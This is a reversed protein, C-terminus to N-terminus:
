QRLSSLRAHRGPWSQLELWFPCRTGQLGGTSRSCPTTWSARVYCAIAHLGGGDALCASGRSSGFRLKGTMKLSLFIVPGLFIAFLGIANMSSRHTVKWSIHVKLKPTQSSSLVYQESKAEVGHEEVLVPRLLGTKWRVWMRWILCM